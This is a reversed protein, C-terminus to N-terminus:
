KFHSKFTEFSDKFAEWVRDSEMKFQEWNNEAAAQIEELKKEGEERKTRLAVLQEEYKVKADEKIEHGREQLKDIETSWEDLQVKIQAVYEDKTLM